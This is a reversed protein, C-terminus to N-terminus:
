DILRGDDGFFPHPGDFEGVFSLHTVVTGDEGLRFIRLAPPELTFSSPGQPDLDLTVSHAANPGISVGIGRMVCQSARHVHGCAIHRVQSHRAVVDLFADANELRQVDMHRIGTDFPPHHMFLLTPRDPALALQRDLWDLRDPCLRGHPKGPVTSDLGILRWPRHDVAYHFFPGDDPAFARGTLAARANARDDHNGLIPYWPMDLRDLLPALAAYEEPRGQDTLDGTVIVADLRPRFANLHRVAAELAAATDVKDYALRGDAKIHTDTIQGLLM